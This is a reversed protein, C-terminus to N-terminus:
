VGRVDSVMRVWHEFPVVPADFCFQYGGTEEMWEDSWLVGSRGSEIWVRFFWRYCCNRVCSGDCDRRERRFFLRRSGM